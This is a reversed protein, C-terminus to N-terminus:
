NYLLLVLDFAATSLFKFATGLKFLDATNQKNDMLVLLNCKKPEYKQTKIVSIVKLPFSAFKIEM